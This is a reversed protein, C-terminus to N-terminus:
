KLAAEIKKLLDKGDGEQVIAVCSTPVSLGAATGLEEKSGVEVFIIGKEQCLPKIHLIIEPPNIDKAVAVLKASGKEVAKTAENIGKKIKGSRKAIEIAEFAKEQIDKENM